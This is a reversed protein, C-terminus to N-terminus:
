SPTNPCGAFGDPPNAIRVLEPLPMERRPIAQADGRPLMPMRRQADVYKQEIEAFAAGSAM